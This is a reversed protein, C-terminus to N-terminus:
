CHCRMWQPFVHVSTSFNNYKKKIYAICSSPYIWKTCETYIEDCYKKIKIELQTKLVSM